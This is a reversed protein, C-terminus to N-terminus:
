INCLCTNHSTFKVPINRNILKICYINSKYMNFMYGTLFPDAHWPIPIPPATQNPLPKTTKTHCMLINCYKTHLSTALVYVCCAQHRAASCTCDINTKCLKQETSRLNPSWILLVTKDKLIILKDGQHKVSFVFLHKGENFCPSLHHYSLELVEM